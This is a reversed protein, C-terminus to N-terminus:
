PTSVLQEVQQVRSNATLAKNSYLVVHQGASLGSLIQVNGNLDSRGVTVPQFIPQQDNVLWVGLKGGQRIIAANSIVPTNALQPLEVTVEALEGISPTPKPQQSFM